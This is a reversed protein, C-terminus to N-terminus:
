GCASGQYSWLKLLFDIAIVSVGEGGNMQHASKACAAFVQEM